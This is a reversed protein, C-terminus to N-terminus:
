YALGRIQTPPWDLRLFFGATNEAGRARKRAPSALLKAMKREPGSQTM